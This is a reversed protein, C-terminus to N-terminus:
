KHNQPECESLLYNDRAFQLIKNKNQDILEKLEIKTKYDIIINELYVSCQDLIEDGVNIEDYLIQIFKQIVEYGKLKIISKFFDSDDSDSFAACSLIFNYVKEPLLEKINKHLIPEFWVIVGNKRETETVLLEFVSIEFQTPIAERYNRSIPNGDVFLDVSIPKDFHKSMALVIEYLAEAIVM